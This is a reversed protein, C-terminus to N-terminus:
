GKSLKDKQIISFGLTYFEQLALYLEYLQTGVPVVCGDDNVIYQGKLYKGM